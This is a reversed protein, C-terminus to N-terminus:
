LHKARDPNAALVRKGRATRRLIRALFRLRGKVLQYHMPDPKATSGPHSPWDGGWEIVKGLALTNLHRMKRHILTIQHDTLNVHAPVGSPHRNWNLDVADGGAHESWSNTGAINRHNYGGEDVPEAKHPTDLREVVDNYFTVWWILVFGAWNGLVTLRRNADPVTWTHLDPSGPELVLFGNGTRATM